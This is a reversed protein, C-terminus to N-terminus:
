PTIEFVVGFGSSGGTVTTGYLTGNAGLTVGAEPYGGDSGGTFDYLDTYIWSGNSPTLKFVNGSSYVGGGLTAGYLAGASDIALSGVPGCLLGPPLHCPGYLQYIVNFTWGSASPALMYVVQAADGGYLNGFRDFILGGPYGGDNFGQFSHLIKRQWSSGVPSLEFVTGCSVGQYCYGGGGFTTTGFLNGAADSIVGSQAGAPDSGGHFAAIQHYTWSSGLPMLSYVSGPTTGYVNGAADFLLNGTPTGGDQQGTFEYLTTEQWPCSTSNCVHPQPKLNYVSGCGLDCAPNAGRSTNGYLSGDPGFIVGGMPREGDSGGTFSYLNTFIWGSPRNAMKFVAGMNQRDGLGTTGYLNGAQDLTVSAAPEGGDNGGTFSHLVTFTQAQSAISLVAVVATAIASLVYLRRSLPM